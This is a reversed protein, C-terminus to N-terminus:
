GIPSGCPDLLEPRGLSDTTPRTPSAPMSMSTDVTPRRSPTAPMPYPTSASTPPYPTSTPYPSPQPYTSGTVGYSGYASSMAAAQAKSEAIRKENERGISDLNPPPPPPVVPVIQSSPYVTDPASHLAVDGAADSGNAQEANAQLRAESKRHQNYVFAGVVVAAIVVFTTLVRAMFGMGGNKREVVAVDSGVPVAVEQETVVAVPRATRRPAGLRSTYESVDLYAGGNM